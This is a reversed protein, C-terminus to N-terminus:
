NNLWYKMVESDKDFFKELEGDALEDEEVFHTSVPSDCIFVLKRSKRVSIARVNHIRGENTKVWRHSNVTFDILGDYRNLIKGVIVNLLLNGM